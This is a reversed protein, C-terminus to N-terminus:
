FHFNVGLNLKGVLSGTRVGIDPAHLVYLPQLEAFFGVVRGPRYEFGATAHGGFISGDDYFAVLGADGGGGGYVRLTDAVNQTYLVDVQLFNALVLVFGSVRLEVDDVIPGGLQLGALPAVSSPGGVVDVHLGFYSDQAEAVSSSLLVLLVLISCKM